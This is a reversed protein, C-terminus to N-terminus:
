FAHLILFNCQIDTVDLKKRNCLEHKQKREGSSPLTQFATSTLRSNRNHKFGALPFVLVVKEVGHKLDNCSFM